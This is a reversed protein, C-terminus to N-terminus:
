WKSWCLVESAFRGPSRELEAATRCTSWGEDLRLHRVLVWVRTSGRDACCWRNWLVSRRWCGVGRLASLMFSSEQVTLFEGEQSLMSSAALLKVLYYGIWVHMLMLVCKIDSLIELTKETNRFRPLERSSYNYRLFDTELCLSVIEQVSVWKAINLIM